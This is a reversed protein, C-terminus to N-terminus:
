PDAFHTGIFRTASAEIKNTAAPTAITKTKADVIDLGRNGDVSPTAGPCALSMGRAAVDPAATGGTEATGASESRRETATGSDGVDVGGSTAEAGRVVSGASRACAFGVSSVSFPIRLRESSRQPPRVILFM